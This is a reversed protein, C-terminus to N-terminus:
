THASEQVETNQLLLTLVGPCFFGKSALDSVTHKLQFSIFSSCFLACALQLNNKVIIGSYKLPYILSCAM